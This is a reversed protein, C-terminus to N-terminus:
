VSFTATIEDVVGDPTEVFFVLIVAHNVAICVLTESLEGLWAYEEIPAVGGNIGVDIIKFAVVFVVHEDFFFSSMRADELRFSVFECTRPWFRIFTVKDTKLAVLFTFAATSELNYPLFSPADCVDLIAVTGFVIADTLCVLVELAEVRRGVNLTDGCRLM